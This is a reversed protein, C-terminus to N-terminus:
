RRKPKGAKFEKLYFPEWYAVDAFQQAQFKQWALPGLHKATPYHGTLVHANPHQGLVESLKPAGDGFFLIPFQDLEAQFPEHTEVVQARTEWLLHGEPHYLQCYVEMRRADLMPCLGVGSGQSIRLGQAMADLTPVAILPLGLAFAMGKATSAGIRLGTYSGPGESVALAQLQSREVGAQQLVEDIMLTLHTAHSKDRFLESLAVLEGSQHLAVSCVPTATDISLIYAM